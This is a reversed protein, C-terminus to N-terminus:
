ADTGQHCVVEFNVGCVPDLVFAGYYNPHYQPRLGPAGNCTGGAELAAKHFQDVEKSNKATFAIHQRKLLAVQLEEEGDQLDAGVFWLFPATDGLGVVNPMPRMHEKYGMHQLSDLLFKVLGEFTRRPVTLSFHDLPM